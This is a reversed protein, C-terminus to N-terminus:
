NLHLEAVVLAVNEKFILKEVFINSKMREVLLYGRTIKKSFYVPDLRVTNYM